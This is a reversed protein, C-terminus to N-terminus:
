LIMEGKEAMKGILQDTVKQLEPVYALAAEAARQIKEKTGRGVLALAQEFVPLYEEYYDPVDALFIKMSRAFTVYSWFATERYFGEGNLRRIADIAAERSVASIDTAFPFETRRREAALDFVQEVQNLVWEASEQTLHHFGALELLKEHVPGLGATELVERSRLYRLRVTPNRLASVLVAHTMIGTPFLWGITRDPLSAQYDLGKLGEEVRILAHDRRKQIEPTKAFSEAVKAAVQGLRDTPDIIVQQYRLLNALHYNAQAQKVSLVEEAALYSVELLIGNYQFKGRKPPLPRGNTELVVYVDVDSGNAVMADESLEASSGGLYAGLFGPLISEQKIVWEKVSKRAEGITM